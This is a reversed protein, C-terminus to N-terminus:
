IIQWKKNSFKLNDEKEKINNLKLTVHNYHNIQLREPVSQTREIRTCTLKHVHTNIHTIETLHHTMHWFYYYM